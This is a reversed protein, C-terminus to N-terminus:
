LQRLRRYLADPGRRTTTKSRSSSIAKGSGTACNGRRTRPKMMDINACTNVSVDWAAGSLCTMGEAHSELLAWPLRASKRGGIRFAHSVLTCINGYGTPTEALLTLHSGDELTVECGLIPKVSYARCCESFKVAASLNDHDTLALAPMGLSAARRVLREISSGGDLFSYESHLHLEVYM